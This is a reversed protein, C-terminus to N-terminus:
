ALIPIRYTQTNSLVPINRYVSDFKYCNVWVFKLFCFALYVLVKLDRHVIHKQHCYQVASVIQLNYM